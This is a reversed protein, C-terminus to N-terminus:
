GRRVIGTLCGIAGAARIYQSVDAELCEVGAAELVARTRPCRAPMVIRRPGIPVFNMARLEETEEDSPLEILRRGGLAVRLSPTVHAGLVAVLDHDVPNVAGLLHQVGAGIEVVETRVGMSALLPAIQAVAAANTRRGAGILVTREDLWMADAGEFTADGRPTLLIPIGLRALAEATYREEGARQTAAMRALIAGEPTMFFLDCMFIHNPPPTRSPRHLHVRVGVSAYLAALARTQAQLAALEPREMMLWADPSEPYDMEEGAVALLVERLPAFHSSVGCSGWLAGIEAVHPAIRPSWGAGGLTSPVEPGPPPTPTM